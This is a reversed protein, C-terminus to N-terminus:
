AGNQSAMSLWLTVNFARPQYEPLQIAYGCKPHWCKGIEWCRQHWSIDGKIEDSFYIIDGYCSERFLCLLQGMGFHALNLIVYTTISQAFVGNEFTQSLCLSNISFASLLSPIHTEIEARSGFKQGQALCEM